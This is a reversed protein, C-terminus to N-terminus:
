EWEIRVREGIKCQFIAAAPGRNIALELFLTSGIYAIRGAEQVDSFTTGYQFEEEIGGIQVHIVSGRELSSNQIFNAPINTIINGFSDISYIGGTAINKTIDPDPLENVILPGSQPGMEELPLGKALNCAVPAMIDRGQFTASGFTDIVKPNEVKRVDAVRAKPPFRGFLGNNPGIFYNGDNDKIAVIDRATGVGPDVVVIVICPTQLYPYTTILFYEAQIVSFPEVSHTIDEIACGTPGLKHIIGRLQAVYHQGEFGFDTLLYIINPSAV